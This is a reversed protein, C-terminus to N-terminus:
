KCYYHHDWRFGSDFAQKGVNNSGAESDIISDVISIPFVINSGTPTTYGSYPEPPFQGFAGGNGVVGSACYARGLEELKLYTSTRMKPEGTYQNFDIEDETGTVLLGGGPEEVGVGESSVFKNFYVNLDTGSPIKCTMVGNTTTASGSCCKAGSTTKRGLPTCCAFDKSSFVAGHALKDQYTVRNEPNGKDDVPSVTGDEDYMKITDTSNVFSAALFQDRTTIASSFIGPVLKQNDLSCYLPEYTIQPIGILELRGLKTLYYYPNGPITTLSAPATKHEIPKFDIVVSALKWTRTQDAKVSLMPRNQTDSNSSICWQEKEDTIRIKDIPQGTPSSYSTIEDCNAQVAKSGTIDEFEYSGNELQYNVYIKSGAPLDNNTYPIYAPLYIHLGYDTTKDVMFPLPRRSGDPFIYLDYPQSFTFAVPQYPVDSNMQFIYNGSEVDGLPMTDLRTYGPALADARVRDYPFNEAASPEYKKPFLITYGNIEQFPVQLCGGQGPSKCFLSFEQNYTSQVVQDATFSNYSSSALPSRFNICSFNSADISLRNKVKWDHSGDSFKRIWGGGCCNSSGTENM